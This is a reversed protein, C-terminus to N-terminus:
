LNANVQTKELELLKMKMELGGSYGGLKNNAAIVRHCPILIPFRNKGNASGIARVAKQKGIRRAQDSYSITKGYPIEQLAKWAQKQFDTGEILFPVEFKKRTGKTYEQLQDAFTKIVENKGEKADAFQSNQSKDSEFFIGLLQRDDAVVKLKGFTSKIQSFYTKM